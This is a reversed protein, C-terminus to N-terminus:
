EIVEDAAALVTPPVIIGLSHAVGQSVALDFKVAREVPLDGPRAGRLIRDVYDAARRMIDPYNPGYTMLAGGAILARPSWSAAIKSELAFGNIRRFYQAVLPDACANIADVAKLQELATDLAEPRAVEAVVVELGAALAAARASQMEWVAGQAVPNMLIGLRRM